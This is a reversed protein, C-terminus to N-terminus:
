RSGEVSTIVLDSSREFYGVAISVLSFSTSADASRLWPQVILAIAPMQPM